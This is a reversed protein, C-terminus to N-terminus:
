SFRVAIKRRSSRMAAGMMGFGGLMMAWSAPEPVASSPPSALTAAASFASGGTRNLQLTVSADTADFGNAITTGLLYLSIATDNKTGTGTSSYGITSVSSASFTYDGFSFFLPQSTALTDGVTNSFSFSGITTGTGQAGAYGGTASTTFISGTGDYSGSTAGTTVTPNYLYVFSATGAPITVAQASGAIGAAAIAALVYKRM